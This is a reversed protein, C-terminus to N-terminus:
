QLNRSRLIMISAGVNYRFLNWADDEGLPQMHITNGACIAPNRTTLVVKQRHGLPMPLGAAELDFSERVDDLLLLFTKNRLFRYIVKASIPVNNSQLGLLGIDRAFVERLM